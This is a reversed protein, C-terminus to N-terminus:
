AAEELDIIRDILKLAAPPCGDTTICAGFTERVLADRRAARRENRQKQVIAETFQHAEMHLVGALHARVQEWAPEIRGDRHGVTYGDAVLYGSGVEQVEPLDERRIVIADDPVGPAPYAEPILNQEKLAAILQDTHVNIAWGQRTKSNFARLTTTDLHRVVRLGVDLDSTSVVSM